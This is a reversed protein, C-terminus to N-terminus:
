PRANNVIECFDKTNLSAGGVLAGDIDKESMLEKTNSPKVSGGYLIIINEAENQSYIQKLLGRLFAHVEQAQQPTATKGTGIAWVPEYAIVVKTIDAATLGNLSNKVQSEIVDFTTNKEREELTEGVCLIPTLNNKLATKMKKNIDENTEHFLQRRESHGLIVYSCNLDKLMSSSIEGTFAGSDEWHMNQAGLLINSEYLVESVEDLATHPPCVVISVDSVQSLERKIGNALEIADRTTKNMKWNGAIMKKRM